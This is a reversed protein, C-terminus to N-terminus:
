GEKSGWEVACLGQGLTATYSGVKDMVQVSVVVGAMIFQTVVVVVVFFSCCRFWDCCHCGYQVQVTGMDQLRLETKNKEAACGKLVGGGRQVLLSDM